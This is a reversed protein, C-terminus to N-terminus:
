GGKPRYAVTILRDAKDTAEERSKFGGYCRMGEFGSERLFHCIEPYTMLRISHTERNELTEDGRKIIAHEHQHWIARVEDIEHRLRREVVVGDREGRHVEESKFGVRMFKLPSILDLILIGGPKLTSRFGNLTRLIDEDQHLHNFSSFMCVVADFSEPKFPLWRMDCQVLPIPKGDPCAKCALLMALSLDIGVVEYGRKRLPISHRGTGCAVDLVRKVEGSALNKFAWDLFDIEAETDRIEDYIIQSYLAFLENYERERAEM